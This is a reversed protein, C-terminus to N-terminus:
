KKTGIWKGIDLGFYRLVFLLGATAAAEDLNGIIPLRDPLFEIFGATPNLLYFACLVGLVIMVNDKFTRKQKPALQQM